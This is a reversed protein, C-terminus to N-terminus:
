RSPAETPDYGSQPDDAGCPCKAYAVYVAIAACLVMALAELTMM